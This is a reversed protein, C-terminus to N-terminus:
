SGRERGVVRTRRRQLPGRSEFGAAKQSFAPQQQQPTPDLWCVRCAMTWEDKQCIQSRTHLLLSFILAPYGYKDASNWMKETM